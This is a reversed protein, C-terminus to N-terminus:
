KESYFLFDLSMIWIIRYKKSNLFDREFYYRYLQLLTTIREQDDSPDWQDVNHLHSQGDRMGFGWLQKLILSCIWFCFRGTAVLCAWSKCTKLLFSLSLAIPLLFPLHSGQWFSSSSVHASCFCGYDLSFRVRNRQRGSWWGWRQGGQYM